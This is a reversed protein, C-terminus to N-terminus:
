RGGAHAIREFVSRIFAAHDPLHFGM